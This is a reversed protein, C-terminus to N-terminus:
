KYYGRFQLYSCSRPRAFTPWIKEGANQMSLLEGVATRKAM